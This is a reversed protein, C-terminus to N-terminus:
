SANQMRCLKKTQKQFMILLITIIFYYHIIYDVFM